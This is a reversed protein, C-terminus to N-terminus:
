FPLINHTQVFTEGAESLFIQVAPKKNDIVAEECLVFKDIDM